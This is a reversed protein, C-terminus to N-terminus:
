FINWLKGWCTRDLRLSAPLGSTHTMLHFITIGRKDEPVAPGLYRGIPDALDLVGRELLRLAIMGTALIKTMSAMDYLTRDNVAEGASTYSTVGWARRVYVRERVGIALAASPVAGGRVAEEVLSVANQFRSDTM